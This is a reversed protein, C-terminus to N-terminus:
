GSQSNRKCAADFCLRVGARDPMATQVEGGHAEAIRDAIALGLGAGGGPARDARVGRAKLADLAKADLGEGGDYVSVTPGPGAEIVIEGGEPTARIANVALTRVAAAIAEELGTVQQPAGNSQFAITKGEAVAAPALEAAIRRAVAHLDAPPQKALSEESQSRALLLFQEVMDSMANLQKRLRAADEQPLKDLELALVALPTKLEHAADMAFAEQRRAYTELKATLQSVAKAFPEIEAPLANGSADYSELREAAAVVDRTAAKLRRTVHRIVWFAGLGFLLLFVALPILVHDVIEMWTAAAPPPHESFFGYQHGVLAVLVGASVAGAVVLGVAIQGGISRTM